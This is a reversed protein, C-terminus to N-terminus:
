HLFQCVRMTWRHPPSNGTTPMMYSYPINSKLWAITETISANPPLLEKKSQSQVVKINLVLCATAVLLMTRRTSRKMAPPEKLSTSSVRLDVRSIDCLHPLKSYDVALRFPWCCSYRDIQCRLWYEILCNVSLDTGPNPSKAWVCPADIPDSSHAAWRCTM